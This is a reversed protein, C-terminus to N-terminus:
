PAELAVPYQVGRGIYLVDRTPPVEDAVALLPTALRATDGTPDAPQGPAAASRPRGGPRPASRPGSSPLHRTPALSKPLGQSSPSSALAVLQSTFAKTSAVGIEPGAPHLPRWRLGDGARRRAAWSTSSPRTRQGRGPPRRWRSWRTRRRGPSPSPWWWRTADLLPRRYRFESAYDVEVPIGALEELLFKGSPRRALRHRLRGPRSRLQARRRGPRPARGGPAGLPRPGPPAGAPHGAPGPAARPDGQAHLAPLWRARRALPITPCPRFPRQVPTGDLRSISVGSADVAAM